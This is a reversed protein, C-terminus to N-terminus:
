VNNIDSTVSGAVAAVIGIHATDNQINTVRASNPPSPYPNGFGATPYNRPNYYNVARTVNGPLNVLDRSGVLPFGDVCILLDVRKVSAIVTRVTEAGKSFGFLILKKNGLNQGIYSIAGAVDTCSFVQAAFGSANLSAALNKVGTKYAEGASELGTFMVVLKDSNGTAPRNTNKSSEGTPYPKKLQIHPPDGSVMELGLSSLNVAAAIAAAEQCDMAVGFNHPSTGPYAPKFLTGYSPTVAEPHTERNGGAAVWEDYMSKQEEVSRYTTNVNVKKGGNKDKYAKAAQLIANKFEVNCQDFRARTGLKTNKFIFVDDPDINVTPKGGLNSTPTVPAAAGASLIDISYRGHNFYEEATGALGTWTPPTKVAGTKRWEAALDASRYKHAVFLMGAATCIDDDAYIGKNAILKTYNEKFEQEQLSDQTQKAKFFDAQSGIKDKNTWSETKSLTSDEYQKIADPKIYGATALYQADVQYKGINTPPNIVAPASSQVPKTATDRSVSNIMPLLDTVVPGYSSPHLKPNDNSPYNSLALTQDGYKSAIQSVTDSAVSDYPLIWIYKVAKLATRIGELNSALLTKNGQGNKIDNSGCSIIAVQVKGVWDNEYTWQIFKNNPDQGSGPSPPNKANALIQTSTDGVRAMVSTALLKTKLAGLTGTGWAISDGMILVTGKSGVTATGTNSTAVSNNVGTSAYDWRSEFYALEAIMNTTYTQTLLPATTSVASTSKYLEPKGLWDTPCQNTISHGAAHNIGVNGATASSTTPSSNSKTNGGSHVPNGSSDTVTVGSSSQLQGTPNTAGANALAQKVEKLKTEMFTQFDQMNVYGKGTTDFHNNAYASSGQRYCVYDLSQGTAAPWNIMAYVDCLRYTSLHYQKKRAALYKYVPGRTQEPRTMEQMATTTTGCITQAENTGIQILGTYGLKNQIWPDMTYITELLMASLLDLYSSFGLTTSIEKVADLFATDTTWPVPVGKVKGQDLKNGNPKPLVYDSPAGGNKPPCLNSPLIQTPVSTTSGGPVTTQTWPQHTPFITVISEAAGSVSNWIRKTSDYSTDAFKTKQLSGGSVGSSGGQGNIEVGGGAITITGGSGMAISGGGITLAGGAGIQAKGGYFLASASGSIRVDASTANISADANINVSSGANINVNKDAHLNLDGQARVSFSGGNYINMDGNKELEIWSSGTANIIFMVGETDNMLITHGGSSRLRVLQDKGTSDGDDMVFTHGGARAAVVYDTSKFTGSKIKEQYSPDNKPDGSGYARGPTSIGFVASPSERQSSSSIAGRVPDRDLGQQFLINAQPEHLPKANNYFTATYSNADNENFETVPLTQSAGDGIISEKIGDTAHTTDRQQSGTGAIAPVMYHSLTPNVCAFWYGRDPDGNLFTCLVQNNIDPTVMWMGYTHNTTGFANNETAPGVFTAGFFPSAYSVTVWGEEDDENHGFDPIWVRLRGSRIPDTNKKVVGMYTATDYKTGTARTRDAWKPLKSGVIGNIQGM